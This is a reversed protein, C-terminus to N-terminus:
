LFEAGDDVPIMKGDVHVTCGTPGQMLIAPKGDIYTLVRDGRVDGDRRGEAVDNWITTFEELKM